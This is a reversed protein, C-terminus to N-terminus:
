RKVVKFRHLMDGEKIRLLYIGQTLHQVNARYVDTHKEFEIINRRGVLDVLQFDSIDNKIGSLELYNEVPNPYVDVSNSYGVLDGKVIIPTEDSFESACDDITVQVKYIGVATSPVNLTSNTASLIATM